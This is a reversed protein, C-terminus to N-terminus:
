AVKRGNKQEIHKMNRRNLEVPPMHGANLHASAIEVKITEVVARAFGIHIRAEQPTIKGNDFGKWLKLVKERLETTDRM